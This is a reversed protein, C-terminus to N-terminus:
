PNAHGNDLLWKDFESDPLDPVNEKIEMLKKFKTRESDVVTKITVKCEADKLKVGFNYGVVLLVLSLSLLIVFITLYKALVGNFM